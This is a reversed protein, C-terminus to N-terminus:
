PKSILIKFYVNDRNGEALFKSIQSNNEFVEHVFKNFDYTVGALSDPESTSCFLEDEEHEDQRKLTGGFAWTFAFVFLKQIMVALKDPNKELYM